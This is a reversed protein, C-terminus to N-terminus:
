PLRFLQTWHYGGPLYGVGIETFTTSLINARHGPSNMWGNVVETPSIYGKALNKGYAKYSIGFYKAMNSPSGYTPSVHNFYNHVYMDNNKERAVRTLDMNVTYPQLGYSQRIVNVQYVVENEFPALTNTYDQQTIPQPM